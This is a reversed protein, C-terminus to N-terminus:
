LAKFPDRADVGQIAKSKEHSAGFQDCALPGRIENAIWRSTKSIKAYRTAALSCPNGISDQV